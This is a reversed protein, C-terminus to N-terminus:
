PCHLILGNEEEFNRFSTPSELIKAFFPDTSYKNRIGEVLNIGGESETLMDPLSPINGFEDPPDSQDTISDAIRVPRDEHVHESREERPMTSSEETVSAPAPSREKSSLTKRM